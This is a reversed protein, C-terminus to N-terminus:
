NIKYADQFMIAKTGDANDWNYFKTEVEIMNGNSSKFIQILMDGLQNYSEMKYGKNELEKRFDYINKNEYSDFIHEKM